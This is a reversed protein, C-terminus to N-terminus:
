HLSYQAACNIEVGGYVMEGIPLGKALLPNSVGPNAAMLNVFDPNDLNLGVDSLASEDMEITRKASGSMLIESSSGAIKIVQASVNIERDLRAVITLKAIPGGKAAPLEVEGTYVDPFSGPVLTMVVPVSNYWSQGSGVTKLLHFNMKLVCGKLDYPGALSVSSAFSIFVSILIKLFIPRQFM